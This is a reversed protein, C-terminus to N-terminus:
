TGPARNPARPSKPQFEEEARAYPPLLPETIPEESERAGLASVSSGLARHLFAAMQGRTVLTLPCFTTATCGKTIGEAAVRNISAEFPSTEDDTFFDATTSPLPLARDLFAAMQERTVSGNPCFTTATCGKTIGSAALRNIESEFASTEDDTFFDTGTAPLSLARDLFAAMQGRTVSDDPCFREASCGATIGSQFLWVINSSFLSFQADVLPFAPIPQWDPNWEDDGTGALVELGGSGDSNIVYVNLDPGEDGEFVLRSGDGSWGSRADYGAFNTLNTVGSGSAGMVFIEYDGTRASTFTIKSGDPSWNPSVDDGASTTLRAVGSGDANMTYIEFNGSRDSAFAIKRRDPSWNPNVDDAGHSTLRALGSGDIKITYIEQNGARNSSFTLRSGDPSWNPHLDMSSTNTLRKQGTGNAQMIWINDGTPSGDTAALTARSFAVMTGGPSWAPSSDGVGVSPNTLQTAGSGNSNVTWITGPWSGFPAQNYVVRGPAGAFSAATPPPPIASTSVVGLLLAAVLATVYRM